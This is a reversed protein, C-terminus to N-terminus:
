PINLNFDTLSHLLLAAISGACGLAIERGAGSHRALSRRLTQAFLYGIAGLLLLAAPIGVESAIELYDNHAHNVFKDLFATQVSTYAVPFTGLGTGLLPNRGILRATDQWVDWRRQGSLTYEDGVSEFRALVPQPGIWIATLFGALLFVAVFVVGFRRHKDSVAVLAALLVAACVASIIGMRSRSFVLAVFLLVSWALWFVLKQFEARVLLGGVPGREDHQAKRLTRAHSFVLALSFPLTMELFGAYHNRNIYTGTAEELNYQKVYTFIQQWGTLYQTLGFFAEFGALLLLVLVVRGRAVPDRSVAVTLCFATVCAMVQVASDLTLAPAITVYGIQVAMWAAFLAALVALRAPSVVPTPATSVLLLATVFLMVQTVALLLPERGGLALVALVVASLLGIEILKAM